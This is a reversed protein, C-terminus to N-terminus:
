GITLMGSSADFHTVYAHLSSTRQGGLWTGDASFRAGHRPCTFGGSSDTSVTAGEHPCVRSLAVFRESGTRVVAIALGRTTVLAIGGVTGLAAYDAVRITLGAPDLGTTSDAGACAALVVGVAALLSQSLFARRDQGAPGGNVARGDAATGFPCDGACEVPRPLSSM